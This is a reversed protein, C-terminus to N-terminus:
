EHGRAEVARLAAIGNLAAPFGAYVCMQIIAEVLEDRTVGVNKAAQLHVELQPQANGMAVLAAVTILERTRLDLGPRQYVDGFAFEIIYRGLDPALDALAAIVQEGADGDIEALRVKGLAYRDHTMTSEEEYPREDDGSSRRHVWVWVQLATKWRHLGWQVPVIQAIERRDDAAAPEATGRAVEPHAQLRDRPTNRRQLGRDASLQKDAVGRAVDRGLVCPPEFDFCLSDFNGYMGKTRLGGCLTRPHGAVDPNRRRFCNRGVDKQRRELREQCLM